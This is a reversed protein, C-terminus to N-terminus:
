STVYKLIPFKEKYNHTRIDKALWYLVKPNKIASSIAYRVWGRGYPIYVRVPVKMEQALAPLDRIPLGYLLELECSTDNATLLELSEKALGRNHTAVKVLAKMVLLRRVVQLFGKEPDVESGDPAPSQGKVVRVNVGLSVANEADALSREWRGPLTIGTDARPPPTSEQILRMIGDASSILNSDLHLPVSLERATKLLGVYHESNCDFAWPKVSVSGPLKSLHLQDIARSCAGVVDKETEDGTDWYGLTIRYGRQHLYTCTRIADELSTGAVLNRSATDVLKKISRTRKLKNFM